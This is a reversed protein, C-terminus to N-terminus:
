IEKTQHQGDSDITLIYDPSKKLAAEIGYFLTYGKGSNRPLIILEVKGFDLCKNYYTKNLEDSGDDVLYVFEVERYLQSVVQCVSPGSNYAPIIAAIKIPDPM